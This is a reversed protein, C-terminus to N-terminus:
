IFRALGKARLAAVLAKVGEADDRRCVLTADPTHVIILDSVGRAAVVGGSASVILGSCEPLVADGQAVNGAADAPLLRALADWAGVDDWTLPLPLLLVQGLAAAREMVGFDISIKRLRPYRTALEALFRPTRWATGLADLDASLEPLHQQCAAIMAAPRFAFLGANWLHDGRAFLAEARAREPKEVFAALRFVERGAGWRGVSAGRALWGYGTAPRDPQIGFVLLADPQAALAEDAAELHELFVPVPSLVHDAPMAVAVAAPDLRQVLRAALGICAATDRGEPEGVVQEAPVGPLLRRVEEVYRASTIVFQRAPPILGALRESTAQLLPVAGGLPLLQKPRQERSAPWFRTGSGGAMIVAVLRSM